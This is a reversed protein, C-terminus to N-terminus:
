AIGPIQAKRAWHNKLLHNIVSGVRCMCKQTDGRQHPGPGKNSCIQIEKMCTYTAYIQNFNTQQNNLLDNGIYILLITVMPTMCPIVIDFVNIQVVNRPERTFKVKEPVTIRSLVIRWHGWGKQLKTIIEGKFHIFLISNGEHLSSKLLTQNFNALDSSSSQRLKGGFIFVQSSPKGWQPWM